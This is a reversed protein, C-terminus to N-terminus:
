RGGAQEVGDQVFRELDSQRYRILRKGLRVFVPGGGRHRWNKFTNPTVKLFKAAQEETLLESM